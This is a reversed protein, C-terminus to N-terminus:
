KFNKRIPSIIKELEEIICNKLDLPHIEGKLYLKELESYSKIKLNGGFKDPRKIDLEDIMPFIILKTIQLVPNDKIEKAPCYAESLTKKIENYSDTVSIGSGPLSKSMKQGPGKLSTILPTHLAIFNHNITSAMDKGLMHVKRQEMGGLAVDINLHKIDVVQMLPYWLQSITANDFDRAIEQMSRLGRNITLNQALKMVDVQYDKTFEFDSGLAVEAKIGIAKITKKWNEVEKKLEDENGKRNLLAHIDALLIVIEFGAKQLDLLKMITVFHGLHMPGSPEYGCYVRPKKKKHLLERLAETSIIEETNRKILALKEEIDM